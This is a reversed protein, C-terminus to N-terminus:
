PQRPLEIFFTSGKGPESHLGAQGGHLEAVRKVIALGLGASGRQDRQRNGQYFRDFVRAQDELAVGPGTDSVELRIMRAYELLRVHVTGGTPTVRLANDLLNALAREFLGADVWALPMRDPYDLSLAVDAAHAQTAFRQVIDDVLEGIATPELHARFDPSDLRALEALADTLKKLQEANRAARTFLAQQSRFLT